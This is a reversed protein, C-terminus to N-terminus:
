KAESMNNSNNHNIALKVESKRPGHKPKKKRNMAAKIFAEAGSPNDSEAALKSMNARIDDHRNKKTAERTTELQHTVIENTIDLKAQQEKEFRSREIPGSLKTEIYGYPPKDYDSSAVITKGNSPNQFVRTPKGIQINAPASWVKEADHYLSYNIEIINKRESTFQSPYHIPCVVRRRDSDSLPLILEIIEESLVCKYQYIPLNIVM